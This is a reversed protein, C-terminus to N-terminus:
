REKEASVIDFFQEGDSDPMQEGYMTADFYLALLRKIEGKDMRRAEFGQESIAKQIQNARAFIQQAKMNRCRAIFLFQRATAMETQIEDLFSIDRRILSRVKENKEEEARGMLYAKNEDFCEASDTCFIEVDPVASLVLTLQQIKTEVSPQSLVSINTPRVKFFLLERRNTQIGYETFAKIGLLEQVSAGNKKKQWKNNKTAM